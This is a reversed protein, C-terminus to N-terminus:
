QHWQAIIQLAISPSIHHPVISYVVELGLLAKFASDPKLYQYKEVINM